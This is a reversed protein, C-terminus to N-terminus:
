PGTSQPASAAVFRIAYHAEKASVLAAHGDCFLMNLTKDTARVTGQKAGRSHRNFDPTFSNGDPLAPMPGTAPTWWPWAPNVSTNAFTSDYLLAREAPRKWQTQKFFWGETNSTGKQRISWNTVGGVTAVPAPAFTYINMSYGPCAIATGRDVVMTTATAEVRNWTGCGWLVNNQNRITGIHPVSTSTADAAFVLLFSM